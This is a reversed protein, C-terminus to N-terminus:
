LFLNPNMKHDEIFHTVQKAPYFEGTVEDPLGCDPGINGVVFEKESTLLGMKLLNEAIRFHVMWTAM